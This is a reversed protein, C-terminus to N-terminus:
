SVSFGRSVGRSDSIATARQDVIVSGHSRTGEHHIDLVCIPWMILFTNQEPINHLLYGGNGLTVMVLLTASTGFLAGQMNASVDDNHM